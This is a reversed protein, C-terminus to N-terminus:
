ESEWSGMLNVIKEVVALSPAWNTYGKKELIFKSNDVGNRYRMLIGEANYFYYDPFLHQMASTMAMVPNTGIIIRDGKKHNLRVICDGVICKNKDYFKDWKDYHKKPYGATIVTIDRDINEQTIKTDLGLAKASQRLDEIHGGIDLVDIVQLVKPRLLILSTYAITEGFKGLGAITLKMREGRGDEPM